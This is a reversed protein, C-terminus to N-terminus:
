AGISMNGSCVITTKQGAEKLFAYDSESFGTTGIIHILHQGVTLKLFERTGGPSTFDLVADAGECAHDLNDTIKLGLPRAGVAIGADDGVLFYGPRCFAGVLRVDTRDAIARVLEQGMRGGVGLVCLSLASDAM